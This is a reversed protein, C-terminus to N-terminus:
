NTLRAGLCLHLILEIQLYIEQQLLKLHLQRLQSAPVLRVVIRLELLLQNHQDSGVRSLDALEDDAKVLRTPHDGEVPQLITPAANAGFHVM